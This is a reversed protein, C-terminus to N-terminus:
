PSAPGNPRAGEPQQPPPPQQENMQDMIKRVVPHTMALANILVQIEQETFELQPM